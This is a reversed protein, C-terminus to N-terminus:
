INRKTFVMENLQNGFTKDKVNVKKGRWKNEQVNEIKLAYQKTNEINVNKYPSGNM